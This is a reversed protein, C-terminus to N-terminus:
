NILKKAISVAGSVEPLLLSTYMYGFAIFSPVLSVRSLAFELIDPSLDIQDPNYFLGITSETCCLVIIPQFLKKKLYLYQLPHFILYIIYLLHKGQKTNYECIEIFCRKM